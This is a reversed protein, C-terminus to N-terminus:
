ESKYYVTSDSNKLHVIDVSMPTADSLSSPKLGGGNNQLYYYQVVRYLDM